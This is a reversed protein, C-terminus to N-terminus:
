GGQVEANEALMQGVVRLAVPFGPGVGAQVGGDEVQEFRGETGALGAVSSSLACPRLPDRWELAVAVQMDQAMVLATDSTAVEDRPSTM